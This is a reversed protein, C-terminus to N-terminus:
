YFRVVAIAVERDLLRRNIREVSSNKTYFRAAIPLAQRAHAHNCHAFRRPPNKRLTLVAFPAQKRGLSPGRPATSVVLFNYHEGTRVSCDLRAPFNKLYLAQAMAIAPGGIM